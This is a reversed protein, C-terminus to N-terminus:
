ELFWRRVKNGGKFTGINKFENVTQLIVVTHQKNDKKDPQYM